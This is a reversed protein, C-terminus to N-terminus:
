NHTTFMVCARRSWDRGCECCIMKAAFNSILGMVAWYARSAPWLRKLGNRLNQQGRFETMFILVNKSRSIVSKKLKFSNEM